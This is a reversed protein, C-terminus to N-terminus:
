IQKFRVVLFIGMAILASPLWATILPPLVGKQAVLDLFPVIVFYVFITGAAATYGLYRKERPKSFGLVVGCIALLICSFSQAHRQFQKNKMYRYEETLEESKLLSLYEKLQAKNLERARKVSFQMLRFAKQAASGELVSMSDINTISDYVGDPAIHYNIGELVTWGDGDYLAKKASIINKMLPTEDNVTEAFKLVTINNMNEGDFNAVILAQKPKGEKNKDVYVFQNNYKQNRLKKIMTTSYPIFKEYINFCLYSCFLSLIVIPVLLRKVSVGISRMTILEFDKSLRDFVFLSGLLLGMPIARGLIEPVELFFLKVAIDPTIEGYMTQRIIRFLIEPSIWIIVFLIVGLITAILVQKFIYKDLIKM